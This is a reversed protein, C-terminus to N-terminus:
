SPSLCYLPARLRSPNPVRNEAPILCNEVWCESTRSMPLSFKGDIDRALFGPTDKEVVFGGVRGDDDKAWVIKVDAISANGIWCKSGNLFYHNGERRARTEM